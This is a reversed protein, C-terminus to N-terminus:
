IAYRMLKMKAKQYNRTSSQMIQEITYLLGNRDISNTLDVNMTNKDSNGFTPVSVFWNNREAVSLFGEYENKKIDPVMVINIDWYKLFNEQKSTLHSNRIAVGNLLMADMPSEVVILYRANYSSILHQNYIYDPSSRSIFRKNGSTISRGLYGVTTNYHFFPIILFEPHLESWYFDTREIQRGVRSVAYKMVEHAQQNNRYVDKLLQTRPPLAIKAFKTIVESENSGKEQNNNQNRSVLDEFPINKIDGGLLEFIKRARGGFGGGPEWGTPKLNFECGGNFCFYRFGGSPTFMMGGRAKKDGCSPCNFNTWNNSAQRRKSPIVNKIEEIISM